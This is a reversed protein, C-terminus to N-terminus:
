LGDQEDAFVLRRDVIAIEIGAGGLPIAPLALHDRGAVRDHLANAGFVEGVGAGGVLVGAAVDAEAIPVAFHDGAFLRQAPRIGAPRIRIWLSELDLRQHLLSEECAADAWWPCVRSKIAGAAIGRTRYYGRAGFRRPH